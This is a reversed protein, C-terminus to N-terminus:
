SASELAGPALEVRGAELDVAVVYEAVAPVFVTGDGTTVEFLEAAATQHVQEVEGVREGECFVPLGEVQWLYFEDPELPPLESAPVVLLWGKWRAAAERDGVGGIRGLIRKGAGPRASISVAIRRGDVPHVLVLPWERELLYTDRNHLHLRVEGDVGFVGSVFGL